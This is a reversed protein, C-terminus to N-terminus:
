AKFYIYNKCILFINMQNRELFNDICGFKCNNM